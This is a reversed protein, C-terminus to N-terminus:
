LTFTPDTYTTIFEDTRLITVLLNIGRITVCLRMGLTTVKLHTYLIEQRVFDLLDRKINGSLLHWDTAYAWCLASYPKWAFWLAYPAVVIGGFINGRNIKCSKGFNSAFLTQHCQWIFISHSLMGRFVLNHDLCSLPHDFPGQWAHMHVGTVLDGIWAKSFIDDPFIAIACIMPHIVFFEAVCCLVVRWWMSYWIDTSAIICGRGQITQSTLPDFWDQSYSRLMFVRCWNVSDGACRLESLQWFQLMFQGFDCDSVDCEKLRTIPSCRFNDNCLSQLIQLCIRWDTFVM